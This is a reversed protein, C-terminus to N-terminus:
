GSATRTGPAPASPPRAPRRPARCPARPLGHGIGGAHQDREGRQAGRQQGRAGGAGGGAPPELELRRHEDGGHGPQQERDPQVQGADELDAGAQHAGAVAERVRGPWRPLKKVPRSATTTAVGQVAGNMPTAM